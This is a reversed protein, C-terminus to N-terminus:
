CATSPQTCATTGFVLQQSSLRPSFATRPKTALPFSLSRPAPRLQASPVARGAGVAAGTRPPFPQFVPPISPFVRQILMFVRQILTFVPQILPFRKDNGVQLRRLGSCGSRAASPGPYPHSFLPFSIGLTLTRQCQWSIFIFNMAMFHFARCDWEHSGELRLGLCKLLLKTCVSSLACEGRIRRWAGRWSSWM